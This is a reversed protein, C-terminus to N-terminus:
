EILNEARRAIPNDKKTMIIIKKEVSTYSVWLVTLVLNIVGHSLIGICFFHDGNTMKTNCEIM